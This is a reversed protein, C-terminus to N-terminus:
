VVTKKYYNLLESYVKEPINLNDRGSGLNIGPQNDGHFDTGGCVCFGLEEAYQLLMKHQSDRFNQIILKSVM